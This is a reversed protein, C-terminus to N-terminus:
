AALQYGNNFAIYLDLHAQLREAKKTTVCSKRAMRSMDHRIKACALNLAFMADDQNRRNAQQSLKRRGVRSTVAQFEAHPVWRKVEAPYSRKADSVITIQDRAVLKVQRLVDERAVARHDARWGYKFQSVSAAKGHCNMEAVQAEIIEGTKARVALAISLPKLRTHEFTEMEDFQVYGTKLEGSRIRREHEQRALWAMFLFKRIVTKRNCGMVKAM